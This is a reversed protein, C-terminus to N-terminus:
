KLQMTGFYAPRHFAPTEGSMTPSWCLFACSATDCEWDPSSHSATSVIRYFNVRYNKSSSHGILNWPIQMTGRWTDNQTNVTHKIGAKEYSVMELMNSGGQGKTPNHVKGVWIANNPNIEIELYREPTATGEGIFVEFVEQNYLPANHTKYSNEKWYPNQKCEFDIYLYNDDYKLKVITKQVGEAGNTAHRFHQEQLPLWTNKELLLHYQETITMLFIIYLFHLYLM